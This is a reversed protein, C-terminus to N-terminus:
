NTYTTATAAVSGDGISMQAAAPKEEMGEM